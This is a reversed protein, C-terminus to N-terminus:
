SFSLQESLRLIEMQVPLPDFRWKKKENELEFNVKPWNDIFHLIAEFNNQEPNQFDVPYSISEALPLELKTQLSILVPKQISLADFWKSPTKGENSETEYYPMLIGLSDRLTQHIEAASAWSEPNKYEM